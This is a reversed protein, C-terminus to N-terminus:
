PKCFELKSSYEKAHPLGLGKIFLCITKKEFNLIKILIESLKKHPLSRQSIEEPGPLNSILTQHSGGEVSPNDSSTSSYCVYITVMLMM